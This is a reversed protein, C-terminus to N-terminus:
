ISFYDTDTIWLFTKFNIFLFMSQMLIDIEMEDLRFRNSCAFWVTYFHFGNFRIAVYTQRTKVRRMRERKRITM